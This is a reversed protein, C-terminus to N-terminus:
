PEVIGPELGHELEVTMEAITPCEFVTLLSVAIGLEERLRAVLFTAVVSDGGLEFFDDDPGIGDVGLVEHWVKAVVPGIAGTTRAERTAESM